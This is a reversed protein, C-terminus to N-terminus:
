QSSAAPCGFNGPSQGDYMKASVLLHCPLSAVGPEPKVLTEIIEPGAHHRRRVLPISSLIIAGVINYVNEHDLPQVDGPNVISDVGDISYYSSLHTEYNASETVNREAPRKAMIRIANKNIIKKPGDTTGGVSSELSILTGLRDIVEEMTAAGKYLDGLQPNEVNGVPLIVDNGVWELKAQTALEVLDEQENDNEPVVPRQPAVPTVDRHSGNGTSRGHQMHRQIRIYNYTDSLHEDFNDATVTEAGIRDGFDSMLHALDDWGGFAPDSSADILIGAVVCM